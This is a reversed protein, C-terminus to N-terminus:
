PEVVEVDITFVSTAEPPFVRMKYLGPAPFVHFFAFRGPSRKSAPATTGVANGQPDEITIVLHSVSAAGIPNWVEFQTRVRTGAVIPDYLTVRTALEGDDNVVERRGTFASPATEDDPSTTAPGTPATTPKATSLKMAAFGLGGAAVLAMAGIALRRRPHASPTSSPAREGPPRPLPRENATPAASKSRARPSRRTKMASESPAPKGEIQALAEDILAVV